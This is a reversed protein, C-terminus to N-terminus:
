INNESRDIRDNKDIKDIKTVIQWKKYNSDQVRPWCQFKNETKNKKSKWLQM